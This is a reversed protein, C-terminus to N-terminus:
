QESRQALHAKLEDVLTRTAHGRRAQLTRRGDPSGTDLDDTRIRHDREAALPRNWLHLSAARVEDPAVGLRRAAKTDVEEFERHAPGFVARVMARAQWDGGGTSVAKAIQAVTVSRGNPLTVEGPGLLELLPSGLAECVGALELLSLGRRGNIVQSVTNGTWRFGLVAMERALDERRRGENELIARLRGALRGDLEDVDAV